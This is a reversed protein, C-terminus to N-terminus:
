TSSTFGLAERVMGNTLLAMPVGRALIPARTIAPSVRAFMPKVRSILGKLQATLSDTKGNMRKGPHWIASVGSIRLVPSTMPM